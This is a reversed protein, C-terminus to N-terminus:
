QKYWNKLVHCRNKYLKGRWEPNSHELISRKMEAFHFLSLEKQNGSSYFVIIPPKKIYTVINKYTMNYFHSALCTYLLYRYNKLEGFGLRSIVTKKIEQLTSFLSKPPTDYFHSFSHIFVFPSYILWREMWGFGSHCLSLEKRIEQLTSFLWLGNRLLLSLIRKKKKKKTDHFHSSWCIFM